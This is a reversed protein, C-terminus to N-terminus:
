QVLAIKGANTGRHNEVTNVVTGRPRNDSDSVHDGSHM